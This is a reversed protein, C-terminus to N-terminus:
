KWAPIGETDRQKYFDDWYPSSKSMPVAENIMLPKAQEWYQDFAVSMQAYENPYRDRVNTTQGPDAKMDFLEGNVLRFRQNRVAYGKYKYEDINAGSPWRGIHTFLMRDQWPGTAAFRTAESASSRWPLLSLLSRGEVQDSPLSASCLAAITPFLDIHAAITDVDSGPEIHGDWRIFFPVRVGGEDTSNKFGKMGANWPMIPQQNFDRGLPNNGSAGDHTMGNDSMFLILTNEMQKLEQLRHMLKGVNWDINEIMAFYGAAQESFGMQNYRRVFRDPAFSPSHPANTAIYAFYPKDAAVQTEIWKTAADFFVDTCFGSTQVFRGNHRVIPDFYSNNPVDACSCDYKQGIGGAGHIFTEDFGRNNPQYEWQDGLHWKGFIGSTYGAPKLAQPLTTANRTLREREFMTHTIGNKMPDRGTMLAARTPACTPAVLFRTFRTSADYLEDLNPTKIWTNGHRGVPAYGQDDTVILVVNPGAAQGVVDCILCGICGLLVILARQM